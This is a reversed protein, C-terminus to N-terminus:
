IVDQMGNHDPRTDNETRFIRVNREKQDKQVYVVCMNQVSVYVTYYRCVVSLLIYIERPRTRSNRIFNRLSEEVDETGGRGSVTLAREAGRASGPM